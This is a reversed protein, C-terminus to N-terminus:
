DTETQIKEPDYFVPFGDARSSGCVDSRLNWDVNGYHRRYRVPIQSVTSSLLKFRIFNPM